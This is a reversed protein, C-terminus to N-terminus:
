TRCPFEEEPKQNIFLAADNILTGAVPAPIEPKDYGSRVSFHGASTGASADARKPLCRRARGTSLHPPVALPIHNEM